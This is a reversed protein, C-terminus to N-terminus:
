VRERSFPSQLRYIDLGADHQFGCKEMLRRSALNDTEAAGIVEHLGRENFVFNMAAEIMESAYGKRRYRSVVAYRLQLKEHGPVVVHTYTTGIYGVFSNDKLRFTWFGIGHQKWHGIAQEIGKRSTPGGVNQRSVEPDSGLADYDELDELRVPSGVMRQTELQVRSGPSM